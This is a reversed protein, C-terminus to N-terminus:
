LKSKDKIKSIVRRIGYVIVISTFIIISSFSTIILYNYIKQYHYFITVNNLNSDNFEILGFNSRKIPENHSNKIYWGNGYEQDIIITSGKSRNLLELKTLGEFKYSVPLFYKHFNSINNISYMENYNGSFIDRIYNYQSELIPSEYYTNKFIWIGHNKYVENLGSINQLSELYHTYNGIFINQNGWCSLQSTGNSGQWSTSPINMVTIYKIGLISLLMLFSSNENNMGNLISNSVNKNFLGEYGPIMQSGIYFPLTYGPNEPLIITHFSLSYSAGHKELYNLLYTYQPKIQTKNFHPGQSFLHINTDHSGFSQIEITASSILLIAVGFTVIIIIPKKLMKYTYNIKNKTGYINKIEITNMAYATIIFLQFWLYLLFENPNIFPAFIPIKTIISIGINNSILGPYIVVLFTSLLTFFLFFVKLINKDKKILLSTIIIIYVIFLVLWYKEVVAPPFKLFGNLTTSISSSTGNYANIYPLLSYINFIIITFFSLSLTLVGKLAYKIGKYVLIYLLFPIILFIYFFPAELTFFSPIMMVITTYMYLKYLNSKFRMIVYLLLPIFLYLVVNVPEGDMFQGTIWPGFQYLLSFFLLQGRKLGLFKLFLYASFPTLMWPLYYFIKQTTSPNHIISSFFGYSVLFLNFGNSSMSQFSWAPFIYYYLYYLNTIPIPLDASQIIGIDISNRLIYLDLIASILILILISHHNKFLFREMEHSMYGRGGIIIAREGETVM